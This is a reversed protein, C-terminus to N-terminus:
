EVCNTLVVGRFGSSLIENFKNELLYARKSSLFKALIFSVVTKKTLAVGRFGSSLIEHFETTINSMM